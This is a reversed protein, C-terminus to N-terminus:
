TDRNPSFPKRLPVDSTEGEETAIPEQTEANPLQATAVDLLGALQAILLIHNSGPIGAEAYNAAYHRAHLVLLKQRENLSVTEWSLRYPEQNSKEQEWM